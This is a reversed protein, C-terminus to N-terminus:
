EGDDIFFTVTVRTGGNDVDYERYTSDVNDPMTKLWEGFASDTYLTDTNNEINTMIKYGQNQKYPEIISIDVFSAFFM